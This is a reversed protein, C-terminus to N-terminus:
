SASGGVDLYPSGPRVVSNLPSLHSPSWCVAHALEEEEERARRREEGDLKRHFSNSKEEEEEAGQGVEQVGAYGEGELVGEREWEGGGGEDELRWPESGDGELGRSGIEWAAGRAPRAAEVDELVSNGTSTVRQVSADLFNHSSSDAGGQEQEADADESLIMGRASASLVGGSHVVVGGEEGAEGGGEWGVRAGRQQAAGSVGGDRVM